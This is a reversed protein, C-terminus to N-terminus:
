PKNVYNINPHVILLDQMILYKTVRGSGQWVPSPLIYIWQFLYVFVFCSSLVECMCM